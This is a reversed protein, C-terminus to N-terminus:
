EVEVKCTRCVKFAKEGNSIPDVTVIKHGHHFRIFEVGPRIVQNEKVPVVQKCISGDGLFWFKTSSVRAIVDDEYRSMTESKDYLVLQDHSVNGVHPGSMIGPGNFVVLDYRTTWGITNGNFDLDPQVQVGTVVLTRPAVRPLHQLYCVLDGLAYSGDPDYILEATNLYGSPLQRNYGTRTFSALEVVNAYPEIDVILYYGGEFFIRQTSRFCKM